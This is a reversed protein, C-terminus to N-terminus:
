SIKAIHKTIPIDFNKQNLDMIFKQTLNEWGFGKAKEKIQEGREERERDHDLLHRMGDAFGDVDGAPVIIAEESLYFNTFPIKDSSIIAKADIAAQAVSMGFGEMESASVYIDCFSFLMPLYEEPIFGLLFARDKLEPLDTLIEQLSAFVENEPGGGIFLLCDERENAVKAFARLIVDKRKTTDMRSTEFLIKSSQLTAPSLGTEDQLYALMKELASDAYDHFIKADVGPPYFLVNDIHVGYNAILSKAIEYSTAGLAPTYDCIMREHSRRERFRLDRKVEDSKDRFNWEKLVGLSHPTWIHKNTKTLINQLLDHFSEMEVFSRQRDFVPDNFVANQIPQDFIAAGLVKALVLPRLQMTSAAITSRLNMWDIHKGVNEKVQQALASKAAWNEFAKLMIEEEHVYEDEGVSRLLLEGLAYDPAKSISNFHRKNHFEDFEEQTIVGDTLLFILKSCIDNQWKIILSVGIVGADWYHTNIMEYYQWPFLNLQAAEAQIHDYLWDLEEILAISIDEKRIFEDGGGPVYVYRVNPTLFEHGKRIEESEYFPFGGRAYITVKYGLRDLTQASTNVYVNQGGTDPAGGIPIDVGGYGHNTILAIHPRSRQLFTNLDNNTNMFIMKESLGSFHALRNAQMPNISFDSIKGM